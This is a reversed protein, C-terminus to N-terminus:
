PASLWTSASALQPSSSLHSRLLKNVHPQTKVVNPLVKVFRCSNQETVSRTFNPLFRQLTEALAKLLPAAMWGGESSFHMQGQFM